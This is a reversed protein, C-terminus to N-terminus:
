PQRRNSRAAAAAATEPDAVPEGTGAEQPQIVRAAPSVGTLERLRSMFAGYSVMTGSPLGDESNGKNLSNQSDSSWNQRSGPAADAPTGARPSPPLMVTFGSGPIETIRTAEDAAASPGPAATATVGTALLAALTASFTLRPM